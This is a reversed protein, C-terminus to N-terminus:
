GRKPPATGLGLKCHSREGKHYDTEAEDATLVNFLKDLSELRVEENEKIEM